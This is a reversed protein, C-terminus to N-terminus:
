GSDEEDGSKEADTRTAPPRNLGPKAVRKGDALPHQAQTADPSESAAVLREVAPQKLFDGVKPHADLLKEVQRRLEADGGCASELFAARETETNKDLVAFFLAEVQNKIAISWTPNHM